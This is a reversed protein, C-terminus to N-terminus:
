KALCVQMPRPECTVKTDSFAFLTLKGNTLDFALNHVALFEICGSIEPKQYLIRGYWFLQGRRLDKFTVGHSKEDINIQM